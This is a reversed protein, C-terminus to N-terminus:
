CIICVDLVNQNAYKVTILSVTKHGFLFQGRGMTNFTVVM